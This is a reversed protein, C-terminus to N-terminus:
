AGAPGDMVEKGLYAEIVRSDSQAERATGQMLTKGRDLVM